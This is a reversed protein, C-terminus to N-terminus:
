TTRVHMRVGALTIDRDCNVSKGHELNAESVGQGKDPCPFVFLGQTRECLRKRHERGTTESGVCLVVGIGEYKGAMGLALVFLWSFLVSTGNFFPHPVIGM